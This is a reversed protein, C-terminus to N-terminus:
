GSGIISLCSPFTGMLPFTCKGPSLRCHCTNTSSNTTRPCAGAHVSQPCCIAGPPPPAVPPLVLGPGLLRLQDQPGGLLGGLAGTTAIWTHPLLVHDSKLCCMTGCIPKCHQLSCTCVQPCVGTSVNANPLSTCSSCPQTHTKHSTSMRKRKRMVGWIKRKKIPVYTVLRTQRFM